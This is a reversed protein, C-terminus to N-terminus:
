DAQNYAEALSLEVEEFSPISEAAGQKTVSLAAAMVARILGRLLAPRGEEVGEALARVAYGMFTDGAGTTDVADVKFVPLHVPEEGPLRYRVGKSGETLIVSVDPWREALARIVVEGDAAGPDMGIFEAGETENLIVAFFKNVPLSELQRNWPSPNLIIRLGRQLAMEVAKEVMNVENQLVLVDGEKVRSMAEEFFEESMMRNTGPYYLIGNEGGESVQIFTHGSQHDSEIQVSKCDVGEAELFGKLFFGDAGLKGAHLVDLGARAMAVSQNLGKGGIHVARGSAELTEGARVFHPVQYVYDINMSGINLVRM